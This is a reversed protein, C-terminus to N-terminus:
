APGYDKIVSTEAECLHMVKKKKKNEWSLFWHELATDIFKLHKRNRVNRSYISQKCSPGHVTVVQSHLFLEKEQEPTFNFIREGPSRPWM